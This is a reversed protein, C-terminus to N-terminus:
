TTLRFEADLEMFYAISTTGTGALPTLYAQVMAVTPPTGDLTFWAKGPCDSSTIPALPVPPRASLVSMRGTTPSTANGNTSNSLYLPGEKFEEELLTYSATPGTVNPDFTIAVAGFALDPGTGAATQYFRYHLKVSLVRAEDYLVMLPQLEPLTANNFVIATSMSMATGPASTTITIGSWMKRAIPRLGFGKGQRSVAMRMSAKMAAAYAVEADDAPVPLHSASSSSQSQSPVYVVDSAPLLEQFGLRRNQFARIKDVADKM